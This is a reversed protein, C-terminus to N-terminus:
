FFLGPEVGFYGALKGIVARSLGRKEALVLSALSQSGIIKGVQSVTLDNAEMLHRLLDIGRLKPAPAQRRDFDELLITLAELYDREGASLQAEGRVALKRAMALAQDFQGDTRIPRLPLERVLELYHDRGRPGAHSKVTKM